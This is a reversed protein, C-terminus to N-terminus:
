MLGLSRIISVGAMFVDTEEQINVDSMANPNDNQLQLLLDLFALKNGHESLIDSIKVVFIPTDSFDSNVASM